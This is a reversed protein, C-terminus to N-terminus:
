ISNKKSRFPCSNITITDQLNYNEDLIREFKVKNIKMSRKLILYPLYYGFREKVLGILYNAPIKVDDGEEIDGEIIKKKCYENICLNLQETCSISVNKDMFRALKYGGYDVCLIKYSYIHGITASQFERFYKDHGYLSTESKRHEFYPSYHLAYPEEIVKEGKINMYYVRGGFIKQLKKEVGLVRIKDINNPTKKDSVCTGLGNFIWLVYIEKETYKKTREILKKSTIPSNQCEIAIKFKDETEFYVDAVQDDFWYEKQCFKISNFNPFIEYWYSKMAKHEITEPEFGDPKLGRHKFCNLYRNYYVQKDCEKCIWTYRQPNEPLGYGVKFIRGLEQNFASFVESEEM